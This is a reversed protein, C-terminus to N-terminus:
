RLLGKGDLNLPHAYDRTGVKLSGFPTEVKVDVVACAVLLLAALIALLAATKM